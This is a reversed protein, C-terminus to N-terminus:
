TTMKHSLYLQYFLHEAISLLAWAQEANAQGSLAHGFLAKKMRPSIVGQECLEDMKAAFSLKPSINREDAICGLLERLLHAAQEPKNARLATRAELYGGYVRPPVAKPRAGVAAADRAAPCDENEGGDHPHCEGCVPCIWDPNM